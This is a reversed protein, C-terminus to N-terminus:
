APTRPKEEPSAGLLRTLLAELEAPAVPKRLFLEAALTDCQALQAQDMADGM